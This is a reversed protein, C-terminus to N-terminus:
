NAAASASAVWPICRLTGADSNVEVLGAPEARRFRSKGPTMGFYERLMVGNSLSWIMVDGLNGASILSRGGPSVVLSDVVSPHGRLEHLCTGATPDWVRVTRDRSGSAVCWDSSLGRDVAEASVFCLSKITATHGQLEVRKRSELDICIVSHGECFALQSEDPSVVVCYNDHERGDASNFEQVTSGDATNLIRVPRNSWREAIVIQRGDALWDASHINSDIDTSTWLLPLRSNKDDSDSQSSQDLSFMRLGIDDSFTLLLRSQENLFLRDQPLFGEALRVVENTTRNWRHLAEDIVFYVEQLDRSTIAMEQYQQLFRTVVTPPETDQNAGGPQWLRLQGDNGTSVIRRGDSLWALGYVREHDTMWRGRIADVNEDRNDNMVQRLDVLTILGSRNGIAAMGTRHNVAVSQVGDSQMPLRWQRDTTAEELLVYHQSESSIMGAVLFNRDNVQYPAVSTVRQGGYEKKKAILRNTQLDFVGRYGDSGASYLFRDDPSLCIADVSGEHGVLDTASPDSLTWMQLDKYNGCAYLRDDSRTLVANFAIKAKTQFKQVEQGQQWNWIKVAGDDGATAVQQSDGSFTVANVEGQGSEIKQLRELTAADYIRVTGDAGCAAFYRGDPSTSVFYGSDSFQDVVTSTGHTEQWLLYWEIDRLDRQGNAPIHRRLIANTGAVDGDQKSRLALQMDAAYLLEAYRLNQQSINFEARRAADAADTLLQNSEDLDRLLQNQQSRHFAEMGIGFTMLLLCVLAITLRLPYRRRYQRLMAMLTPSRVSVPEGRQFAELDQLMAGVSEYRDEPRRQLCKACINAVERSLAPNLERPPVPDQSHMLAITTTPSDGGYPRANTLLWYLVAGLSYVDTHTGTDSTHGTTQEPAMFGPTGIILGTQTEGLDDEILKALGFDSLKPVVPRGALEVTADAENLDASSMLINSPKIDRHLIGRSHAHQLGRCLQIVLHVATREDTILDRYDRLTGGDCYEYVIAPQPSEITEYVKVIAQHTLNACARAEKLFRRCADPSLITEVRPIKIAVERKLAHDFAHFVTGFGGRGLVEQLEYQDLWTGSTGSESGADSSCRGPTADADSAADPSSESANWPSRAFFTSDTDAILPDRFIATPGATSPTAISDQAVDEESQRDISHADATDSASGSLRDLRPNTQRLMEACALLENLEASDVEDAKGASASSDAFRDDARVFSDFLEREDDSIEEESSM